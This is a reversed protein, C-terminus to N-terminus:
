QTKFYLPAVNGHLFKKNKTPEKYMTDLYILSSSSIIYYLIELHLNLKIVNGSKIM